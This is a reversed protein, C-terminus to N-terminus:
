YPFKGIRLELATQRLVQIRAGPAVARLRNELERYYQATHVVSHVTANAYGPVKVKLNKPLAVGNRIDNLNVIGTGPALLLARAGAAGHARIAVIHHAALLPNRLRMASRLASVNHTLIEEEGVYYNHNTSVEFNYVLVEGEHRDITSVPLTCNESTVFEDGSRVERASTWGKGAVYFPHEGTVKFTDRGVTIEFVESRRHTFRNVVARLKIEDTAENWAWVKDGPKIEEIPKLGAETAVPTGAVFCQPELEVAIEGFENDEMAALITAILQEQWLMSAAVEQSERDQFLGRVANFADIALGIGTEDFIYGTLIENAGKGAQLGFLTAQMANGVASVTGNYIASMSQSIASGASLSVLNFEHGSPDIGNIPNAHAYLYIRSHPAAPPFVSCLGDPKFAAVALLCALLLHAPRNM